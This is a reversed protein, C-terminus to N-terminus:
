VQRKKQQQKSRKAEPINKHERLPVGAAEAAATTIKTRAYSQDRPIKGIKKKKKTEMRNLPGKRPLFTVATNGAANMNDLWIHM